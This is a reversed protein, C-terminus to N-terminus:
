AGEPSGSGIPHRIEIAAGVPCGIAVEDTAPTGEVPHWEAVTHLHPDRLLPHRETM